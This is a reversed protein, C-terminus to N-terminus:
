ERVGVCLSTVTCRRRVTVFPRLTGSIKKVTSGYTTSGKRFTFADGADGHKRDKTGVLTLFYSLSSLLMNPPARCCGDRLLLLGPSVCEGDADEFLLEEDEHPLLLPEDDDSSFEM